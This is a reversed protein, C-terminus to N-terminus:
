WGSLDDDLDLPPDGMASRRDNEAALDLSDGPDVEAGPPCPGAFCEAHVLGADTKVAQDADVITLAVGCEICVIM